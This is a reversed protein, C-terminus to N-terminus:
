LQTNQRHREVNRDVHTGHRAALYMDRPIDRPIDLPLPRGTRFISKTNTDRGANRDSNREVYWESDIISIRWLYNTKISIRIIESKSYTNVILIINM